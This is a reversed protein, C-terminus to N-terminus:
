QGILRAQLDIRAVIEVARDAALASPEIALRVGDTELRLDPGIRRVPRVKWAGPEVGTVDVAVVGDIAEGLCVCPRCSLFYGLSHLMGLNLVTIAASVSAPRQATARVPLACAWFFGVIPIAIGVLADARHISSPLLM